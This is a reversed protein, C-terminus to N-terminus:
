FQGGRQNEYKLNFSIVEVVSSVRETRDAEILSGDTEDELLGEDGTDVVTFFAPSTDVRMAIAGAYGIGTLGTWSDRIEVDESWKGVDWLAVDWLSNNNTVITPTSNPVGTKFDTFVEVRPFIDVSSRYIPQLSKFQKLDGRSGFYNYATVMDAVLIEGGDTAGQDWQYIGDAGGFYINDNATFWSFANIGVFRCWAGTQVNQVYQESQALEAIPVNFIALSGRQYLCGEWGFNSRYRNAATLFAPQIKATLAVLNEQARDLQLAQSLPVVGDTTLVVLDAGYKILSRRSLPLGIDYVGVLAWDNADSPDIGQYVAVQGESTVWVALDDAGSGGDVSWTAQSIITGGKDFIPGLDLLEAAGQIANPALFWVRLTNAEVWFTRGKHEMVDVLTAPDLTLVGASGTITLQAWDTGNQRIPPAAGNAALIFTGADNAFNIWQFRASGTETYVEVPADGQGTMDYISGGSAGFIRDTGSGRLVMGTEVPLTLGNQWAVFGKRLEVYGARPIWNVLTVANEPPMDAIPSQADWGGVPAPIAKGVSVRGRNIGQSRTPARYRM